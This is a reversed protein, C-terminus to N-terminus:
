EFNINLFNSYRDIIIGITVKSRLIVLTVLSKQFYKKTAIVSETGKDAHLGSLCMNKVIGPGVDM